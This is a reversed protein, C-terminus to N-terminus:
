REGSVTLGLMREGVRSRDRPAEAAQGKWVVLVREGLELVEDLDSSHVIVTVGTAAAARLRRHVEETTRVDLGRTPNEAVLVAPRRELARALVVKQQNGGSLTGAAADPGPAVIGFEAILETARARAADWDLRQGRAWRPDDGLGLVMNETISLEAILGETTRDEPVFAVTGLAEIDAAPRLGAIARLVDRHGNGEIAAVGILEGARLEIGGLRVSVEGPRGGDEGDKGPRGRDEGIGIMAQAVSQPTQAEVPGHLTVTGQRLVTVRDAVAFVERLKHTILAVAGGSNAFARIEGLLRDVESPALAGTPEDLLLIRAGTAMAKGIELWQRQAVSLEAVLQDPRLGELFGRDVNHRQAMAGKRGSTRGQALLLNERVSLGGISTFHQHVMGIGQARADRPSRLTVPQGNVRVTGSDPALMGYAIHMLTSKGAGNEGVLAHIEGPRLSFDAGRVARVPGFSKRINTLELAPATV